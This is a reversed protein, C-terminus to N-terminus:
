ATVASLLNAYLAWWWVDRMKEELEFVKFSIFIIFNSFFNGDVKNGENMRGACVDSGGM